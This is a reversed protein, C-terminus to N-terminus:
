AIEKTVFSWGLTPEYWKGRSSKYGFCKQLVSSKVCKNALAADRSSFFEGMPTLYVGKSKAKKLNSIHDKSKSVGRLKNSWKAVDEPRRKVGILAASQEPRIKGRWPHRKSIKRKTEDSHGTCVFKGNQNHKNFSRANNKADFLILIDSELLRIEEVSGTAIITRKWDIQNNLVMPKVIKSSCIYGDDVHCNKATRSGIYWMMSPLHTWKYVYCNANATM